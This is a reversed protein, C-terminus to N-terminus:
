FQQLYKQFEQLKLSELNRKKQEGKSYTRYKLRFIEIIYHNRAKHLYPLAEEISKYDITPMTEFIGGMSKTYYYRLLGHPETSRDWIIHFDSDGSYSILYVNKKAEKRLQKLLKNKM